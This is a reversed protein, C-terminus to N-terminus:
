INQKDVNYNLIKNLGWLTIKQNVIIPYNIYKELFSANGGTLIVNLTKYKLLYQRIFGEIEYSAGLIVGTLLSTSTDCGINEEIQVLEVEPLKATFHHMAKSRMMLGPSISGGYYNGGADIADYTICTGADIVLSAINPYLELAGVVAALRDRGLTNPTRYHNNIPLLTQHTFEITRYNKKLFNNLEEDINGTSSIFVNQPAINGLFLKMQNLFDTSISAENKLVNNEILFFKTLTNGVDIILQM